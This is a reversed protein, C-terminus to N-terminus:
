AAIPVEVTEPRTVAVRKRSTMAAASVAALV